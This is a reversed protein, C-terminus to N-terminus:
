NVLAELPAQESVELPPPGCGGRTDSIVALPMM